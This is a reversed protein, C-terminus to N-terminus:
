DDTRRRRPQPEPAPPVSATAPPEDPRVAELFRRAVAEIVVAFLVALLVRIGAQDAEVSGDLLGVTAPTALLASLLAVVSFNM